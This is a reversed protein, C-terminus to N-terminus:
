AGGEAELYALIVDGDTGVLKLFLEELSGEAALEEMPGVALLKGRDMVGVRHCFREAIELRHSALLITKGREALTRLLERVLTAAPPDLGETPEDLILVPPDHILAGALAIKRRMGKSYAEILKGADEELGFLALLRRARAEGERRPVSWLYCVLELFEWGTLKDYLIPDEAVFGVCAKAERPERGVDHGCIEVTGRDPRLLGVAMKFTTTKGAGNPGLLGFIEGPHVELHLGDVATKKGFRKTLGRIRIM